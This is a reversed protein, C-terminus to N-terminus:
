VSLTSNSTSPTVCLSPGPQTLSQAEFRCRERDQDAEVRAKAQGGVDLDDRVAAGGGVQRLVGELCLAQGVGHSGVEQLLVDDSVYINGKVVFTVNTGGDETLIRLSRVNKNHIWLNGDIFYM